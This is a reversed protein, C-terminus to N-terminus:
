FRASSPSLPTLVKEFLDTIREIDFTREAYARANLGKAERGARDSLLEQSAAVFGDQDLPSVVFGANNEKVIRAALNEPPVALLLARAACLYTLVKSPVSFVGADPELIAVLVDATGLMDPMDEFPQFPLLVVNKLGTEGIRKKLFEVSAGESVVIVRVDPQEQARLALQILLEPNHKMGLTGSYLVNTTDALGHKAGWPNKRDRVPMDALPAWNEIVHVRSPEAPIFPRFDESIVVVADSKRLATKEMNIYYDGVLGGVVPIKAGLLRKVAEGILDQVWFVFKGGVRHTAKQMPVLADLPTNACLVIDPRMEEIKAVARRGHEIDAQRRKRMDTKDFGGPLTIPFSQFMAPDDERRALAGKPTLFSSSFAHVTEHGRRALSRSLEVQFPHGSFDHVLIRM